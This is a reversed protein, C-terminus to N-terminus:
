RKEGIRWHDRLDSVLRRELGHYRAIEADNLGYGALASLADRPTPGLTEAIRRRREADLRLGALDGDLKAHTM